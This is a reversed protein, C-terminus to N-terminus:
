PWYVTYDRSSHCLFILSENEGENTRDAFTLVVHRASIFDVRRFFDHEFLITGLAAFAGVMFFGTLQILTHMAIGQKKGSYERDYGCEQYSDVDAAVHRM